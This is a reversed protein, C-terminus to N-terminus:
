ASGLLACSRQHHQVSLSERSADWASPTARRLPHPLLQAHSRWASTHCIHSIHTIHPQGKQRWQGRESDGRWAGRAPPHRAGPPPPSPPREAQLPSPLFALSIPPCEPLLPPLPPNPSTNHQSDFWKGWRGGKRAAHMSCTSPSPMGTTDAILLDLLPQMRSAGPDTCTPSTPQTPSPPYVPHEPHLGLPNPQNPGCEINCRAMRDACNYRCM